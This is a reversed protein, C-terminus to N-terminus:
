NDRGPGIEGESFRFLNEWRLALVIVVLGVTGIIAWLRPNAMRRRLLM